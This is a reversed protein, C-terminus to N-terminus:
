IFFISFFAISIAIRYIGFPVFTHKRVFNILWKIVGLAVIFSVTFGILILHINSSSILTYNELLDLGSAALITPVALLFSFEVITERSLGRALGGIITAASRSVGPVIAVAQFVGIWFSDRITLESRTKLGASIKKKYFYEFIILIIGGLFLASVVLYTNGLLYTKTIKYLTLGIIGTPIFGVFLKKIMELRFIKRFYFIVVACMAGLQIVIEFLKLFDGPILGLIHSSLILHGTSSVPLFETLGEVIGLIFAHIWTM